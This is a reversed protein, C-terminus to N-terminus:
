LKEELREEKIFSQLRIIAPWLPQWDTKKDLMMMPSLISGDMKLDMYYLDKTEFPQMPSGRLGAFFGSGSALKNIWGSKEPLMMLRVVGYGDGNMKLVGNSM